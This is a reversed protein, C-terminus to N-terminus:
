LACAANFVGPVAHTGATLMERLRARKAAPSLPQKPTSDMMLGYRHCRSYGPIPGGAATSRDRHGLRCRFVLSDRGRLLVLSLRPRPALRRHDPWRRCSWGIRRDLAM